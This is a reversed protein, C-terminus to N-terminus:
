DVVAIVTGANVADNEQVHIAAVRGAHQTKMENQMKMAEVVAIGQGAEVHDGVKVLVRVVKGPMPAKISDRGQGLAGSNRPSYKRPDVKEFLYRIGGITVTCGDARVEDVRAETVVGNRLVSFVGPEVEMADDIM